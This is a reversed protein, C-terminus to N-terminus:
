RSPPAPPVALSVSEEGATLTVTGDGDLRDAVLEFPVQRARRM